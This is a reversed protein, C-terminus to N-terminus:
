LPQSAEFYFHNYPIFRNGGKGKGSQMGLSKSIGHGTQLKVSNAKTKQKEM